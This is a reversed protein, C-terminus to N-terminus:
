AISCGSGDLIDRVCQLLARQTESVTGVACTSSLPVTASQGHVTVTIPTLGTSVPGVTQSPLTVPGVVQGGVTVTGVVPVGSVTIVPPVSVPGVTQGGVTFPGVSAPLPVTASVPSTAYTTPAFPDCHSASATPTMAYASSALVLLTLIPRTRMTM